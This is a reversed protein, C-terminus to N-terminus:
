ERKARGRWSALLEPREVLLAAALGAVVAWFASTIGAITFPTAAVAFAILAAFRLTGGFAKELADQLASLVALGALAFLYFRPLVGILSM